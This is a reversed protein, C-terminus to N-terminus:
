NVLAWYNQLYDSSWYGVLQSYFDFHNRIQAASPTWCRRSTSVKWIIALIGFHDNFKIANLMEFWAPSAGLNKRDCYSSSEFSYWRLIEILGRLIEFFGKLFGGVISQSDSFNELLSLCTKFFFIGKFRNLTELNLTGFFGSSNAIFVLLTTIM